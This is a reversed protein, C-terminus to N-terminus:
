LFKNYQQCNPCRVVIEKFVFIIQVLSVKEALVTECSGCVYDLDGDGKFWPATSPKMVPPARKPLEPTVIMKLKM